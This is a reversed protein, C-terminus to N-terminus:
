FHELAKEWDDILGYDLEPASWGCDECFAPGQQIGVGIDVEHHSLPAGCKPCAEEKRTVSPNDTM